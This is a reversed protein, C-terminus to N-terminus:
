FSLHRFDCTFLHSAGILKIKQTLTRQIHINILIIVLNNQQLVNTHFKPSRKKFLTQVNENVENIVRGKWEKFKTKDATNKICGTNIYDSIM